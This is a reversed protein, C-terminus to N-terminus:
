SVDRRRFAATAVVLCGLAVAALYIGAAIVTRDGVDGGGDEGSVLVIANGLILWPRYGSVLSGVANEVIVIYAFGLGLAAGTNRGISAVAFGIVTAFAILGTGRGVAGLVSMLWDSDTGTTDGHWVISPILADTVLAQVVLGFATTFLVCAIAKALLVRIRRPEWTLLTTVTRSQWDAGISSAGILWAVILLPATLVQYMGKLDEVKLRDDQPGDNVFVGACSEPLPAGQGTQISGSQELKEIEGQCREQVAQRVEQARRTAAADAESLDSTNVFTLIGGAAIAVLTVLFLVKVLRRALLRRIEAGILGIM